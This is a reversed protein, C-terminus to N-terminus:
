ADSYTLGARELEAAIQDTSPDVGGAAKVAANFCPLWDGVSFALHGRRQLEEGEENSVECMPRLTEGNLVVYSM